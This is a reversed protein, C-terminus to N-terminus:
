SGFIDSIREQLEISSFPKVMYASVGARQAEAINAQQNKATVMLFPLTRFQPSSRVSRLLDVGSMGPMNWDAIVLKFPDKEGSSQILRWAIEADEAQLVNTFGLEDLMGSVISRMAPMDDVVLIKANM